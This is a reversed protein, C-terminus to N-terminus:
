SHRWKPKYTKDKNFKNSAFIQTYAAYSWEDFTPLRGNISKCYNEAEFRSLHVAPELVSDPKKGYPTKFNWNDRKVWGAGWEYGGGNKEAETIIQNKIAYNNFENITVEYKHLLFKGFKIKDNEFSFVKIPLILLFVLLYKVSKYINYM